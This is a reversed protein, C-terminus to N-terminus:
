EDIRIGYHDKLVEMKKIEQVTATQNDLIIHNPREHTEVSVKEIIKPVDRTKPACRYLSLLSEITDM